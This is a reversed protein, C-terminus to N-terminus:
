LLAIIKMHPKIIDFCKYQEREREERNREEQTKTYKYSLILM